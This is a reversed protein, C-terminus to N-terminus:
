VAARTIWPASIRMEESDHLLKADIRGTQLKLQAMLFPARIFWKTRGSTSAISPAVIVNNRPNEGPLTIVLTLPKTPLDDLDGELILYFVLQGVPQPLSEAPLGIEGTYVGILNVKGTISWWLDDAVILTGHWSKM